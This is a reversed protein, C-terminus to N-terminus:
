PKDQLLKIIKDLRDKLTSLQWSLVLGIIFLACCAIAILQVDTGSVPKM